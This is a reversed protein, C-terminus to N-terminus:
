KSEDALSVMWSIGFKDVFMGFYFGWFTQDMPMIVQGEASLENFLRDAEEKKETTISISFNNGQKFRPAWEGGTDSGMIITEKSIPLSIHMINDAEEAPVPKQGEMPPMDRFRSMYSFEGGFVKKYFDFAEKCNGNFTLYINATTM